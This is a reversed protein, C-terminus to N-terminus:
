DSTVLIEQILARARKGLVPITASDPHLECIGAMSVLASNYAYEGIEREQPTNLEKQHRYKYSWPANPHFMLQIAM